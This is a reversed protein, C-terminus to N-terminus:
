TNWAVTDDLEDSIGSAGALDVANPPGPWIRVCREILESTRRTVDAEHDDAPWAGLLVLNGLVHRLLPMMEQDGSPADYRLAVRCTARSLTGYGLEDEALAELIVRASAESLELAIPRSPLVLRLDDDTPWYHEDHRQTAIVSPLLGSVQHAPRQALWSLLAQGGAGVGFHPLGTLARRVVSSEVTALITRRQEDTLSAREDADLWMMVAIAEASGLASMRYLFTARYDDDTEPDVASELLARLRVGEDRLRGLLDLPPVTSIKLYRQFAPALDMPHVVRMTRAMIWARLLQENRPEARPSGDVPARWWDDMFPALLAQYARSSADAPLGLSDLLTQGVIHIASLGPSGSGLQRAISLPNDEARAEIVIVSLRHSIVRALRQARDVPEGRALWEQAADLLWAHTGAMGSRQRPEASLLAPDLTLRDIFEDRDPVSPMVVRRQEDTKTAGAPNELLADLTRAVMAAGQQKMARRAADILLQWAILRHRGDVIMAEHLGSSITAPLLVVIAGGFVAEADDGVTADGM